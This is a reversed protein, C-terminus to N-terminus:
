EVEYLKNLKKAETHIAKCNAYPNVDEFHKEHKAIKDFIEWKNLLANEAARRGNM